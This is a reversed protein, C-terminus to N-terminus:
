APWRTRGVIMITLLSSLGLAIAIPMGLAMLVLLTTFLIATNM